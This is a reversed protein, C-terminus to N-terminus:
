NSQEDERLRRFLKRIDFAGGITTVVAVVAFLLLSVVLVIKWLLTWTM